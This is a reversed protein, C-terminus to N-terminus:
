LFMWSWTHPLVPSPWIAVLIFPFRCSVPTLLYPWRCSSVSVQSLPPTWSDTPTVKATVWWMPSISGLFAMEQLWAPPVGTFRYPCWDVWLVKLGFNIRDILFVPIPHLLSQPFPWSIVPSVQSEDWPWVGIGSVILSVRHHKCVPTQCPQGRLTKLWCSVWVGVAVTSSAQPSKHFFLLFSQLGKPYLFEVPLGVFDVWRSGQARLSQVVLWLGYV